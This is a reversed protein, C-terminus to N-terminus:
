IKLFIPVLRYNLEMTKVWTKWINGNQGIKKKKESGGGRRACNRKIM